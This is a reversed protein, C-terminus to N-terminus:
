PACSYCLYCIVLILLMLLIFINKKLGLDANPYM